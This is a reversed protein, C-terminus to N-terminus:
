STSIHSTPVSAHMCAFVLVMFDDEDEFSSKAKTGMLAHRYAVQGTLLQPHDCIQLFIMPDHDDHSRCMCLSVKKLVTIAALPSKTSNLIEKVKESGLFTRYIHEQMASLTVWVIFENKEKLNLDLEALSLLLLTHCPRASTM